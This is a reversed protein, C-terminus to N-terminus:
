CPLLLSSSSDTSHKFWGSMHISTSCACRHLPNSPRSSSHSCDWLLRVCGLLRQRRRRGHGLCLSSFFGVLNGQVSSPNKEFFDKYGTLSTTLIRTLPRYNLLGLFFIFVVLYLDDLLIYAEYSISAARHVIAHYCSTTCSMLMISKFFWFKKVIKTQYGGVWRDPTFNGRKRYYREMRKYAELLALMTLFLSTLRWTTTLVIWFLCMHEQMLWSDGTHQFIRHVILRYEPWFGKNRGGGRM